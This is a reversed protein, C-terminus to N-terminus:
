RTTNQPTISLYKKNMTTYNVFKEGDWYQVGRRLEEYYQADLKKTLKGEAEMKQHFRVFLDEDTVGTCRMADDFHFYPGLLLEGFYEIIHVEIGGPILRLEQVYNRKQRALTQLDTRPFIIYFKEMGTSVGRPVYDPSTPAHGELLRPDIVTLDARNLGNNTGGLLIEEVGDGDLDKHLLHTINGPHLYEALPDGNAPNLRLVITPFYPEQSGTVFLDIKQDRDFDGVIFRLMQFDNPFSQNGFTAKKDYGRKWRLTGDSNFCVIYRKWDHKPIWSFTAVVESKGDNDADVTSLYNELDGPNADRLTKEWDYGQGIHKRWLERGEKNYVVLFEDKARAYAPNTDKFIPRVVLFALVMAFGIVSTASAFRVPHIKIYRIIRQALPKHYPEIIEVFTSLANDIKEPLEKAMAPLALRKRAFFKEALAEDRETPPIDLNTNLDKYFEKLKASHESCLSCNELHSNIDEKEQKSLEDPCLFLKELTNNEIHDNM